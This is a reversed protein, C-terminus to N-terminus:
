QNLLLWLEKKLLPQALMDSLTPVSILRDDILGTKIDTLCGLKVKNTKAVKFIFGALTANALEVTDMPESSMVIIHSDTILPFNLMEVKHNLVRCINHWLEVQLENKNLEHSDVMLLWNNYHIAQLQFPEIKNSNNLKEKLDNCEVENLDKPINDPKKHINVQNLSISINPNIAESESISEGKFKNLDHNLTDEKIDRINTFNLEKKISVENINFVDFDGSDRRIWCDVGIQSLIQRQLVQREINM